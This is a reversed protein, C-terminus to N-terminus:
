RLSTVSLNKLGLQACIDLVRVLNGHRSDPACSISITQTKSTASLTKLLGALTKLDVRKDGAVSGTMGITYVDGSFIVIKVLKPPPEDRKEQDLAPRFVDLHAMIDIPKITVIFFILLQFVVDIMPTMELLPAEDGRRKRMSERAM